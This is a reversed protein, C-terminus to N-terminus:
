SVQYPTHHVREGPVEINQNPASGAPHCHPELKPGILGLLSEPAVIALRHQPDM